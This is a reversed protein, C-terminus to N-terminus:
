SAEKLKQLGSYKAHFPYYLLIVALLLLTDNLSDDITIFPIKLPSHLLPKIGLASAAIIVTFRSVLLALFIAVWISLLNMLVFNSLRRRLRKYRDRLTRVKKEKEPSIVALKESLRKLEKITDVLNIRREYMGMLKSFPLLVLLTVITYILALVM